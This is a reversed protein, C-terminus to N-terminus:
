KSDFISHFFSDIKKPIKTAKSAKEDSHISERIRKAIKTLIDIVVGDEWDVILKMINQM